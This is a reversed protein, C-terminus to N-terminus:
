GKIKRATPNTPESYDRGPRGRGRPGEVTGNTPPLEYPGLLEILARVGPELGTADGKLGEELEYVSYALVKNNLTYYLETGATM